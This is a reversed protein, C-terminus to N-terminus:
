FFACFSELKHAIVRKLWKLFHSFKVYFLILSINSVWLFVDILPCRSTAISSDNSKVRQSTVFHHLKSIFSTMLISPRYCSTFNANRRLSAGVARFGLTSHHGRETAVKTRATPQQSADFLFFFLRKLTFSFFLCFLFFLQFVRRKTMRAPTSNTASTKWRSREVSNLIWSM